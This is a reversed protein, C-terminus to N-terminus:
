APSFVSTGAASIESVAVAVIETSSFGGLSVLFFVPIPVSFSSCAKVSLSEKREFFDLVIILSVVFAFM